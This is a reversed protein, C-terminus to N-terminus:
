SFTLAQGSAVAVGIAEAFASLRDTYYGPTLGCEIFLANGPSSIYTAPVGADLEPMTELSDLVFQVKQQLDLLEGGEFSGCLGASPSISIGLLDFLRYCNSNSVNLYDTNGVYFSVSM